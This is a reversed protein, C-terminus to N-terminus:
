FVNVNEDEDGDQPDMTVKIEKVGWRAEKIAKGLIDCLDTKSSMYTTSWQNGKIEVSIM